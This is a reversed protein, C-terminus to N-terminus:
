GLVLVAKLGWYIISLYRVLHHKRIYKASTGNDIALLLGLVQETIFKINKSVAAIASVHDEL